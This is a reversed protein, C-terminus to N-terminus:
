QKEKTEQRMESGAGCAEVHLSVCEPKRWSMHRIRQDQRMLGYGLWAMEEAVVNKKHM